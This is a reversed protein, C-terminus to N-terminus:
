LGMQSRPTIMGKKHCIQSSPILPNQFTGLVSGSMHGSNEKKGRSKHSFPPTYRKPNVGM